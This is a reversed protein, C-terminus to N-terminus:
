NNKLFRTGPIKLIVRSIQHDNGLRELLGKINFLGVLTVLVMGLGWVVHTSLFLLALMLLALTLSFCLVLKIVPASWKLGTLKQVIAYIGFGYLVYCFVYAVAGAELGFLHIAPIIVLLGGLNFVTEIVAHLGKRGLALVAFGLPWTVVRIFCGLVFWALLYAGQTLDRSYFVLLALDAFAMTAILGPVAMLLGIETQQNILAKMETKRLSLSALRPYFDAGMASLVFGVFVGSVMSAASYIGTSELGKTSTIFATLLYTALQAIVSSWMLALGLKVMPGASTIAAAWSLTPLSSLKIRTAFHLAFLFQCFAVAVLSPAIAHVGFFYYLILTFGTAALASAINVKALSGIKRMGQITALHAGALNLLLVAVGLLCVDVTYETSGFTVLSLFSGLAVTFIMGLLGTLMSIKRLVQVRLAVSKLDNRGQADAIERVASTQLGLGAITSILIQLNSLAALLGVGVSGMFLAAFKMRVLAMLMTVSASGAMISSSKVIQGYSSQNRFATESQSHDDEAQTM